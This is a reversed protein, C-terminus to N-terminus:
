EGELGSLKLFRELAEVSSCLQGGIEISDLVVDKRPIGYRMWRWVTKHSRDIGFERKLLRTIECASYCKEKRPNIKM